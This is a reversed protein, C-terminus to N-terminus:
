NLEFLGQVTALLIFIFGMLGLDKDAM